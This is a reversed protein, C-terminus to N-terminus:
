VAAAATPAYTALGAEEHVFPRVFAVGHDVDSSGGGGGGDGARKRRTTPHTPRM